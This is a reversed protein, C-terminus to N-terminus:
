LSGLDNHPTQSMEAYTVALDLEILRTAQM